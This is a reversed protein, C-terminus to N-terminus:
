DLFMEHEPEAWEIRLIGQMVSTIGNTETPMSLGM